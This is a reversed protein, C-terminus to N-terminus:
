NKTHQLLICREIGALDRRRGAEMLGADAMIALVGAAQGAGIELIAIGNETLLRAIYPAMARYCTLADAGCFLAMAPEYGVIEPELEVAEHDGIYPPNAVILDFEDNLGQGWNGEWFAARDALGLQAANTRAVDLAPASIDVGLGHSDPLESLLALLLCGTGTGLDLLRSPAEGDAFVALAAEVVTESDPRPILTDRTVMFPLSWFERNGLIYAAPERAARRSVLNNLRQSEGNRVPRGPDALMVERGIGLAHGVLVQAERRPDIIGADGLTRAAANLMAGLTGADSM